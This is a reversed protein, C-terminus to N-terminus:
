RVCRVAFAAPKEGDPQRYLTLGGRLLRCAEHASQWTYLRGYRQCNAERDDFCYSAATALNLNETLWENGDPMRLSSHSRDALGAGPQSHSACSAAGISLATTLAITGIRMLNM